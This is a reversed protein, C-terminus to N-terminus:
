STLYCSGPGQTLPAIAPPNHGTSLSAVSPHANGLKLLARGPAVGDFEDRLFMTTTTAVANFARVATGIYPPLHHAAAIKLFWKRNMHVGNYIALSFQPPNCTDTASQSVFLAPSRRTVSLVDPTLTGAGFLEGSLDIVARYQLSAVRYKPDYGLAVATTAGDSQGALAIKTRSILGHAIPCLLSTAGSSNLMEKTVFAMDGPQNIDDAEPLFSNAVSINAVSGESTDPFLPAVVVFGAEVWHDLLKAYTDPTLAYGHGFVVMPFPGHRLAPHADPTESLGKTPSLTPYRVETILLRGKKTTNNLYNLTSRASDFFTCRAIGVWYHVPVAVASKPATRSSTLVKSFLVGAMAFVLILVLLAIRRRRRQM